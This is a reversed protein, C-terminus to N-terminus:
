EANLMGDSKGYGISTIAPLKGEAFDNLEKKNVRYIGRNCSMWLNGRGDELIQFVGDNFLGERTTYRTFRGDKFRGLGGDYTGIWLVGDPDEYLARVSNSPLGERETYATFKGDKVRTM